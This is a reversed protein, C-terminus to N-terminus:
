RSGGCRTPMPMNTPWACPPRAPVALSSRSTRSSCRSSRRFPTKMATCRVHYNFREASTWTKRVVELYGDTRANRQDRGLFAGDGRQEDNSDGSSVHVALRGASLNQLRALVGPHRHQQTAQIVRHGAVGLGPQDAKHLM